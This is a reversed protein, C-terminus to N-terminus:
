VASVADFPLQVRFAPRQGQGRSDATVTGGHLGVLHRVIALGLGLGGFSRSKSEDAQRFRDFIRPLLDARMGIGTDRVTLRARYDAWELAVDVRGGPPTFKIANSVRM